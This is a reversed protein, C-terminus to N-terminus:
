EKGNETEGKETNSNLKSNELLAFVSEKKVLIKGGGTKYGELKGETAYRRITRSTLGLIAAAETASILDM